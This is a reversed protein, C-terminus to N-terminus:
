TNAHLIELLCPEWNRANRRRLVERSTLYLDPSFSKRTHANFYPLYLRILANIAM